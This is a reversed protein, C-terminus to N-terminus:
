LISKANEASADCTKFKGIQAKLSKIKGENIGNDVKAKNLEESARQTRELSDKSLKNISDNQLDISNNLISNQAVSSSLEAKYSNIRYSQVFFAITLIAIAGGLLLDKYGIIADLIKM